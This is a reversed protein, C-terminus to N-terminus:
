FCSEACNCAFSRLVETLLDGVGHLGLLDYRTGLLKRKSTLWTFLDIFYVVLLDCLVQFVAGMAGVTGAGTRLLLWVSCRCLGVFHTLGVQRGTIHTGEAQPNMQRMIIHRSFACAGTYDDCVCLVRFCCFGVALLVVARMKRETCYFHRGDCCSVCDHSLSHCCNQFILCCVQRWSM